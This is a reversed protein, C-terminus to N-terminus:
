IEFTERSKILAQKAVETLALCVAKSPSQTYYRYINTVAWGSATRTLCFHTSEPAYKYANPFQQAWYDVSAEIGILYKKPISLHSEIREITKVIRDYSICRATARGEAKRIAEEIKERNKENVIIRM